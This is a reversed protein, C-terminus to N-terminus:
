TRVIVTIEKKNNDPLSMTLTDKIKDAYSGSEVIIEIDGCEAFAETDIEEVSSPIRISKLSECLAFARYGIRKLTGPLNVSQLSKCEEFASEGIIEVGPMINAAVLDGCRGFTFHRITQISGPITINKVGSYSFASDGIMNIGDPLNIETLGKCGSFCSDGIIKLSKNLEISKLQEGWQIRKGIEELTEPFVVRETKRIFGQMAEDSIVRVGDPIILNSDCNNTFIECLVDGIVLMSENMKDRYYNAIRTGRFARSGIYEPNVAIKMSDMPLMFFAFESINKLSKPLEIDHIYYTSEDEDGSYFAHKAICTVGEPVCYVADSSWRLRTGYKHILISGAIAESGQKKGWETEDLCGFGVERISDPFHIVSLNEAGACFNFGLEEIGYGVVVEELYKNNGFFDPPVEKYAGPISVKKAKCKEFRCGGPAFVWTLEVKRGGIFTPLIIEEEDGIYDTLFVTTNNKAITYVWEKADSESLEIEKVKINDPHIFSAGDEDPKYYKVFGYKDAPGRRKSPTDAESNGNMGLLNLLNEASIAVISKGKALQQQYDRNKAPSDNQSKGVVYYDTKGSIAKRVFGGAEAVKIVIPNEKDFESLYGDSHPFNRNFYEERSIWEGGCRFFSLSSDFVFSKNTFDLKDLKTLKM